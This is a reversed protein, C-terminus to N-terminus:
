GDFVDDRTDGLWPKQDLDDVTVIAPGDAADRVVWHYSGRRRTRLRGDRGRLGLRRRPPRAASRRRVRGPAGEGRWAYSMDLTLAPVRGQPDPRGALPSERLVFVWSGTPRGPKSSCCGRLLSHGPSPPKPVRPFNASLPTCPD